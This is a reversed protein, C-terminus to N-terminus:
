AAVSSPVSLQDLLVAAPVPRGTHWGQITDCGLDRLASLCEEDEVGEAVVTMDMAHALEVTSRVLLRDSASRVINQVFSRDIKLENAPFRKLYTLTSQGTGYDDISLKVGLARLQDITRTAAGVDSVIASETLELTLASAPLGSRGLAAAVLTVIESGHLLSASVNIAVGMDYGARRWSALDSAATDLVFATLEGVRGEHEVLPIFQDPPIMGRSPHRWRILAEAGVVRGDAAAVKPQYAVWLEGNTIADNLSGLLALNWRAADGDGAVFRDWDGGRSRARRAAIQAGAILDRAAGGSGRAVGFAMGVEIRGGDAAVPMKLATAIAHFHAEEADDDAHITGVWGLADEDVRYIVAGTVLALREAVQLLVARSAAHGLGAAIESMRDIRAVAMDIDAGAAAQQLARANPLGSEQDVYRRVRLEGLLLGGISAALATLTTVLAPVMDVEHGLAEPLVPAVVLTAALAVLAAVQRRGATWRGILGIVLLAMAVLPVPGWSLRVGSQILTEAALAQIVVGPVIGYGPAPYRDGLEIATAGILLRKGAVAAAPVRGRYLDLFSIRPITDPDIAYDIPFSAQGAPNSAEALMAGISPRTVGRTTIQLPYERVVGDRDPTVNVGALFAWQRFADLPLTDLTQGSGSRAFQSFTPLIVSGGRRRLASAFSADDHRSSVASLDIDFGILHAGATGLRDIAVTWYRRPWPWHSLGALSRADVEVIVVDGSAAHARWGTRMTRMDRELGIGLQSLMTLLAAAAAILLIASGRQGIRRLLISARKV